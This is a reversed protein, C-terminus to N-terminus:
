RLKTLLPEVIKAPRFQAEALAHAAQRYAHVEEPHRALHDLLKALAQADEPPVLLGAKGLVRRQPPTDATVIACGAAAGQYVKNPVVRGAKPGSGFIGLCIDHKAAMGPLEDPGVWNLWTISATKSNAALQKAEAEDQGNGAMTISIPEKLLALAQAITPTGQLPTFAGFFIVKLSEKSPIKPVKAAAFWSAPAGVPVVVGKHRYKEPLMLRNEETDVAVIDAARLAAHDVWTLVKHKLGGSVNRDRATDSGSIMYDLVLPQRRFLLRALHIDFHGLHGIVVAQTPPLKPRLVILKGWCRALHLLLVPLRWPQSAIKVRMATNLKLPANCEHVTVGQARLGDIMGEVRQTNTLDYTGFFTVKM